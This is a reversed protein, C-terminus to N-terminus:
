AFAETIPRFKLATEVLEQDPDSDAVIGCGAYATLAGDPTVQASRLAIAWEGNGAADLWGVPGAYRGRDFPELESILQLAAGTPSGAVAATPHLARVLDLSTSGDSLRGTVDSALHWLNPLKVAFPPRSTTLATTHSALAGTVSNVAFDHEERNKASSVLSSAALADADADPGRAASGALVRGSVAGGQVRILTEPSSGLFGDVAYTWCDPYNRALEGLPLRLDAFRPLQGILDRALVVKGLHGEAIRQVALRVASRYGDSDLSGPRLGIRYEPGLKRAVPLTPPALVGDSAVRTLWLRGNRRGVIQEPVILVSRQPSSDAFAFSGFAILGSGPLQVSDVVSAAAVVENWADRARDFRDPGTFELRLAQGTGVLGDSRRCWVLPNVPDALPLLPVSEPMLTSEVTLTSTATPSVM